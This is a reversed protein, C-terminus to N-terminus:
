QFIHKGGKEKIPEVLDTQQLLVVEFVLRWTLERIKLWKIPQLRTKKTLSLSRLIEDWNLKNLQGLKKM